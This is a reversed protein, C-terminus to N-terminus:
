LGCILILSKRFCDGWTKWEATGHSAMITCPHMFYVTTIIIEKIIRLFSGSLDSLVLCDAEGAAMVGIVEIVGVRRQPGHPLPARPTVLELPVVM